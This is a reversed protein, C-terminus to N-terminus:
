SNFKPLKMLKLYASLYHHREAPLFNEWFNTLWNWVILLRSSCNLVREKLPLWVSGIVNKTLMWCCPYFQARLKLWASSPEWQGAPMLWLFCSIGLVSKAYKKELIVARLPLLWRNMSDIYRTPPQLACLLM